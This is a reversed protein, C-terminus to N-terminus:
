ELVQMGFDGAIIWSGSAQSREFANIETGNGTHITITSSREGVNRVGVRPAPEAPTLVTRPGQNNNKSRNAFYLGGDTAFISNFNGFNLFFSPINKVFLDDFQEIINAQMPENEDLPKVSFRNIRSQNYGANSTLVYFHGGISRTIDQSRNTVSATLLQTPAGATEPITISTWNSEDASAVTRIDKGDGIRVLGGTTAVVACAQSIFADLVTGKSSIVNLADKTAITVVDLTNTSFDSNMLNIRDIIDTTVVFLFNDEYILKKVFHYDGIMQFHMGPMLGDFQNGLEEQAINWGSGDPNILVALGDSGGVFLWGDTDNRGIETATIPGVDDLAGGTISIIYADAFSDITGNEYSTVTTLQDAPIPLLLDNEVTGTQILILRGIGGASMLSINNLGPTSPLFTQLSQIGGNEVSFVSNLYDTVPLLGQANGSSWTTQFFTNITDANNGTAYIFNGFTTNLKGIFLEDTTGAARQWDTWGKIKGSADFLAQSSYMGSVDPEITDNGVLAYITDDRVILDTIAGALLAGGGVQAAIDTSQTMQAQTTAAQTFNRAILKQVQDDQYVNEPIDDKQALMGTDDGSSVLPLAFVTQESAGNGGLIILYNLGTSTYLTSVKYIFITQQAGRVGVINQTNNAGFASDPAIFFLELGGNEILKGVVVARTGDNSDANSTTQLGIFLRQLVADWHFTINPQMAALEASNINVVASTKDLPFAKPMPVVAGTRADVESFITKDDINGRVLLAIGSNKDGFDGSEPKVAAFVYALVNSSLGIVGSSKAGIADHLPGVKVLSFQKLNFLNQALYVLDPQTDVTTVILDSGGTPRLLSLAINKAGWLPNNQEVEGNLTIKEPALPEFASSGSSLRALAFQKADDSDITESSSVYLANFAGPTTNKVSFSFTTGETANKDGKILQRSPLQFPFFIIVASLVIKKIPM